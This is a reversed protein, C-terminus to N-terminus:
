YNLKYFEQYNEFSEEDTLRGYNNDTIAWLYNKMRIIERMLYDNLKIKLLYDKVERANAFGDVKIYFYSTGQPGFNVILGSGFNNKTYNKFINGTRQINIRGKKFLVLASHAGEAKEFQTLPEGEKEEVVTESVTEVIEEVVKDPKTKVPAQVSPLEKGKTVPQSTIKDSVDKKDAKEAPRKRKVPSEMRDEVLGQETVVQKKDEKVEQKLTEQEERLEDKKEEEPELEEKMNQFAEASLYNDKFFSNYGVKDGSSLLFEYNQENIVYLKYNELNDVEFIDSRERLSYFYDLAELRNNFGSVVFVPTGDPLKSTSMEYDNLLFKSFNYDAINFRIRNLDAEPNILVILSHVAKNNVVFSSPVSEEEVGLGQKIQEDKFEKNRLAILNSSVPGKVPMRGKAYMALLKKAMPTVESEPYKETIEKLESEFSTLNGSKAYSLGALLKFKPLLKSEGDLKVAEAMNQVPIVFDNFLYNSYASEYLQEIKQSKAERKKFFDPDNLFATFEGDPFKTEIQKRIRGMNIADEQIEYCLYLNMLVDETYKSEPFRALLENFADIAFPINEIEDKYIIGMSVLAEEIQNNSQQLKDGTLPLDKLYAEKSLLNKGPQKDKTLL